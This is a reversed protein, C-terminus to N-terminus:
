CLSVICILCVAVYVLSNWFKMCSCLSESKIIQNKSFMELKPCYVYLFGLFFRSDSYDMDQGLNLSSVKCVIGSANSSWLVQETTICRIFPTKYCMCWSLPMDWGFCDTNSPAVFMSMHSLQKFLVQECYQLHIHDTVHLWKATHMIYWCDVM